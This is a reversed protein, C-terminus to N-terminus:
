TTTATGGGTTGTTGGPPLQGETGGPPQGGPFGQQSTTGVVSGTDATARGVTFGGLGIGLVVAMSGAWLVLRGRKPRDAV